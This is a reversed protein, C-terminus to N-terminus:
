KADPKDQQALAAAIDRWDQPNMTMAQTSHSTGDSFYVEAYDAGDHVRIPMIRGLAERLKANDAVLDATRETFARQITLAPGAGSYMAECFLDDAWQEPQIPQPTDEGCRPEEEGVAWRKRCASCFYEDQQQARATHGTM